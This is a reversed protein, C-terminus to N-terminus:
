LFTNCSVECLPSNVIGSIPLVKSGPNSQTFSGDEDVLVGEHEWNWKVKRSVDTFSLGKTLFWLNLTQVFCLLKTVWILIDFFFM